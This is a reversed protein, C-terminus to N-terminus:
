SCYGAFPQHTPSKDGQYWTPYHQHRSSSCECRDGSHCLSASSQHWLHPIVHCLNTAKIIWCSSRRLEEKVPGLYTPGSYILCTSEKKKHAQVPEADSSDLFVFGMGDPYHTQSRSALSCISSSSLQPLQSPSLLGFAGRHLLASHSDTSRQMLMASVDVSSQVCMCVPM